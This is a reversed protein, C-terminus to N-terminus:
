ENELVLLVSNVFLSTLTTLPTVVHTVSDPEGDENLVKPTFILWVYSSGNNNLWWFKYSFWIKVLLSWLGQICCSVGSGGGSISQMGSFKRSILRHKAKVDYQLVIPWDFLAKEMNPNEKAPFRPTRTKIKEAMPQHFLDRVSVLFMKWPWVFTAWQLAHNRAVHIVFFFLFLTYIYIYVRKWFPKWVSLYRSLYIYKQERARAGTHMKESTITWSTFFETWGYIKQEDPEKNGFKDISFFLPRINDAIRKIQMRKFILFHPIRDSTPWIITTTIPYPSFRMHIFFFKNELGSLLFIHGHIDM